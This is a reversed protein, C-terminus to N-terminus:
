RDPFEHPWRERLDRLRYHHEGKKTIRPLSGPKKPDSAKRLRDPLIGYMDKFHSAPLWKDDEDPARTPDAEWAALLDCVEAFEECATRTRDVPYVVGPSEQWPQEPSPQGPAGGGVLSGGSVRDPHQLAVRVAIRVWAISWVEILDMQEAPVSPDAPRLRAQDNEDLVIFAHDPERGREFGARGQEALAVYLRAAQAAVRLM